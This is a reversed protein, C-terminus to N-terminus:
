VHIQSIDIWLFLSLYTYEVGQKPKSSQNELPAVLQM